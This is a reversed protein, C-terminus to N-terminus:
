PRTGRARSPAPCTRRASPHNVWVPYDGALGELRGALFPELALHRRDQQGVLVVLPARNVRATRARRGANGLGATTHLLALAAGARASRTARPWASSPARTCRSSSACTARSAPSSRCRPRARTPSSRRSAGSAFSTSSPTVSLPVPARKSGLVLHNSKSAGSLDDPSARRECGTSCSAWVTSSRM